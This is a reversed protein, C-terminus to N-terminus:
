FIAESFATDIVGCAGNHPTLSVALV